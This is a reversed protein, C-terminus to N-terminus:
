RRFYKPKITAHVHSNANEASIGVQRPMHPLNPSSVAIPEHEMNFSSFPLNLYIAVHVVVKILIMM